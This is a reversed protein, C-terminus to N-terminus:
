LMDVDGDGAPAMGFAFRGTEMAAVRDLEDQYERRIDDLTLLRRKVVQKGLGVGDAATGERQGVLLYRDDEKVLALTNILVLFLNVIRSDKPDHLAAASAKLRSIQDYLAHAAGRYNNKAVRFAYLTRHYSEGPGSAVNLADRALSALVEDVADLDHSFPLAILAKERHQTVMAKVLSSLSAKRLRVDEFRILAGYASRFNSCAVSAHFLRSLIDQVSKPHSAAEKYILAQEAWQVVFVHSKAQDFLNMVHQCFPGLGKRFSDREEANLFSYTDINFIDFFGCGYSAKNFYISAMEDKGIALYYRARLYTGWANNPLFPLFESALDINGHKLLNSMVGGSVFEWSEPLPLGFTWARCWYTILEPLTGEPTRMTAWDGVFLSEFITVTATSKKVQTEGIDMESTVSSSRRRTRQSDARVTRALWRTILAGKLREILVPYIEAVDLDPLSEQPNEFDTGVFAILVLLDLLIEYTLELTEQAGRILTKAGYAAIARPQSHGRVNEDLRELAAVVLEQTIGQFGGLDDLHSSLKEFDDDTVQDCISCYAELQAMRDLVAFSSEQAAERRVALELQYNLSSPFSKRFVSAATLLKAVNISLDDQLSAFLPRSLPPDESGAFKDENLRLVEVESCTRIPSVYDAHLLWPLNNDFDYVLAIPEGRRKHFDEVVGYFVQWQSALDLEHQDHDLGDPRQRRQVKVAVAISIKEKLSMKGAATYQRMSEDSLGRLYVGLAAELTPLTFRGPYFLFDLYKETVSRSHFSPDEIDLDRPNSPAAKLSDATLSGADVTTWNNRWTDELQELDDYLSFRLNFVSCRPGSRVQIWLDADRWGSKPKISFEELNWVTTNMLEDIPPTFVFEPQVDHIGHEQHDADRVGWFKFQHRKPSYTVIFYEDGDRPAQVELIQMLKRQEAGVFFQAMKQPDRNNEGLLDTELGVRGTNINWSRLTHNLTVTWIHQQDPSREIAAATSAQLDRDGFRITRSGKWPLFSKLASGFGGEGYFTERWFSGDDAANKTLRLVQGDELSILLEQASPAVLRYPTRLTFATPVCSKCWVDIEVETAAPRIFFDRPLDLTYLERATTLVFVNLSDKEAPEALAVGFPQIPNPFELLLTLIAEGKPHKDVTLDVSRLELIKRESLVRWLFSRPHTHKQRFFISSEGAALHQRVFGTEDAGQYHDQLIRRTGKSRSLFTSNGHSPLNIGITTGAYSPDLNLRTERHLLPAAPTAM